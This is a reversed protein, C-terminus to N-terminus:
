LEIEHRAWLRPAVSRSKGFNAGDLASAAGYATAFVESEIFEM